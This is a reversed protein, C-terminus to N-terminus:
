SCCCLVLANDDQCCRDLDILREGWTGTSFLYYVHNRQSYVAHTHKKRTILRYASLKSNRFDGYDDRVQFWERKTELIKWGKELRSEVWELAERSSICAGTQSLPFGLAMYQHGNAEFRIRTDQHPPTSPASLNKALQALFLEIETKAVKQNKLLVGIDAKMVQFSSLSKEFSTKM